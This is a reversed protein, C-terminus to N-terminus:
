ARQRRVRGGVLFFSAWYCPHAFPRAEQKGTVGAPWSAREVLGDLQARLTEGEGEEASLMQWVQGATVNRLWSQARSLAQAPPHTHLLHYFREMLLRTSLEDVLWHTALVAPAGAYLFARTLGVLEDGQLIRSRGTECASLSVLEAQLRLKEFVGAADLVGDALQLGSSLPWVPNFWGHCSFHLYRARRAAQLVKRRTAQEGTLVAGGMQRGIARAEQEARTLRAGNVGVAVCDAHPSPAKRRCYDLWVTASPAYVVARPRATDGGLYRPSTNKELSCLAHFPIYHLLGHPVIGVLPYDWLTKGLPELLSTYLRALLWPSPLKGGPSPLLRRLVAQRGGASSEFARQLQRRTIPLRHLRAEAATIWFVFITEGAIFYELLLVGEPLRAQVEELSLPAVTQLSHFEPHRLRIRARLDNLQAELTEIRPRLAAAADPPARYLRDLEARLTELRALQEPALHTAPKIPRGALMEVLVRGKAMEVYRFAEALDPLRLLRAVMKEYAEIRAGQLRIRSEDVAINARLSEVTEVARRNEHLSGAFDGERECLDARSLFIRTIIEHNNAQQAMALAEDLLSTARGAPEGEALALLGLGYVAEAANFSDKAARLLRRAREYYRAAEARENSRRCIHGLNICAIGEGPTYQWRRSIARYEELAQRAAELNGMQLHALGLENWARGLPLQWEPTDPQQSLLAISRKLHRIALPYEGGKGAIIALNSLAKGLGLTDGEAECRAIAEQYCATARDWQENTEYIIGLGNLVRIALVPPLTRQRARLSELCAAAEDPRRHLTLALYGRAYTHWQELAENQEALPEAVAVLQQVTEVDHRTQAEILRDAFRQATEEPVATLVALLRTDNM